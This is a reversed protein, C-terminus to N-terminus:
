PQSLRSNATLDQSAEVHGVMALARIGSRIQDAAISSLRLRFYPCPFPPQVFFVDGPEILVGHRRAAAALQNCDLSPPGEVWILAGGSPLEFRFDPLFHRM